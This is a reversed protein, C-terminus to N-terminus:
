NGGEVRDEGQGKHRRARLRFCSCVGKKACRTALATRRVACLAADAALMCAARYTARRSIECRWPLSSLSAGFIIRTTWGPGEGELGGARMRMRCSSLALGVWCCFFLELVVPRFSRYLGTLVYLAQVTCDTRQPHSICYNLRVRRRTSNTCCLIVMGPKAGSCVFVM